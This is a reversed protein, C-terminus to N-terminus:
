DPPLGIKKLLENWRPDSHLSNFAPDSKISPLNPDRAALGKELWTFAAHTEGRWAHIQACTAPDTAGFRKEFEAAARKSAEANGATHEVLADGSLRGWDGLGALQTFKAFSSRAAGPNGQLLQTWALVAHPFPSEPRVEIAKLCVASADDFRGTSLYAGALNIMSSIRLPDIKVAQEAFAIAESYKGLITYVIAANTLVAPDKPASALAQETSRESETFEWASQQLAALRSAAVAQKPDLELARTLVKQAEVLARRRDETNAAREMDRAYAVGMEAWAPAYDPSLKLARELMERGRRIAEENNVQMVFRAQLVLDYAEANPNRTDVGKRLLTVELARAVAKGIDDQV